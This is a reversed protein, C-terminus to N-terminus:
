RYKAAVKEENAKMREILWDWLWPYPLLQTEQESSVIEFKETKLREYTKRSHALCAKHSYSYRVMMRLLQMFLSSRPTMSAQVHRRRYDDLAKVANDCEDYKGTEVLHLIHAFRVLVNMGEKDKRAEILKWEFLAFNFKQPHLASDYDPLTKLALLLYFRFIEWHEKTIEAQVAFREHTTVETFFDNAEKIQLTNMLLLFKSLAYIFWNNSGINYYAVCEDAAHRAGDFDQADLSSRFQYLWFDAKREKMLLRPVSDLFQLAAQSGEIVETHQGAADSALAHVRHYNLRFNYSSTDKLMNELESKYGEFEETYRSRGGAKRRFIASIREFYEVSRLEDMYKVELERLLKNYKEFKKIQGMDSAYRRLIRAMELAIGTLEFQTAIELTTEAMRRAAQSAGLATLMNVMFQRRHAIYFAQAADSFGARKLNLHFLSNLMRVKLRNKLSSYKPADPRAHEYLTGAAATDNPFLGKGIGDYLQFERSKKRARFERDVTEIRPEHFLELIRVLEPFYKM